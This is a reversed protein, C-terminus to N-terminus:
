NQQTTKFSFIKLSITSLRRVVSSLGPGGSDTALIALPSFKRLIAIFFEM